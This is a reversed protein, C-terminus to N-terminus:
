ERNDDGSELRAVTNESSLGLSKAHLSLETKAKGVTDEMHEEFLQAIFPINDRIQRAVAKFASQMEKKKAVPIKAEEALSQIKELEGLLVDMRSDLEKKFYDTQSPQAEIRPVDRHSDRLLTCAVPTSSGLGGILQVLQSETMAINLKTYTKRLSVQNSLHQDYCASIEMVIYHQHRFASGHLFENGQVRCLTAMGFAPHTRITERGLKTHETREEIPESGRTRRGSNDTTM